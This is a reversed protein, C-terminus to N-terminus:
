IVNQTLVKTIFESLPELYVDFEEGCESCKIKTSYLPIYDKLENNVSEMISNVLKLPMLSIIEYIKDKEKIIFKKEEKEKNNESSLKSYVIYKTLFTLTENPDLLSLSLAGRQQPQINLDKLQKFIFKKFENLTPIYLVFELRINDVKIPRSKIEYEKFSKEKDWLKSILKYESYPINIDKLEASCVPCTLNDIKQEDFSVELLGKLIANYDLYSNDSLIDDITENDNLQIKSIALDFINRVLSQINRSKKLKVLDAGRLEDIVYENLSIPCKVKGKEEEFIEKLESFISEYNLFDMDSM